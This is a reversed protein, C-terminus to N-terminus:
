VDIIVHDKVIAPDRQRAGVEFHGRKPAVLRAKERWRGLGSRGYVTVRLDAVETNSCWSPAGDPDVYPAVVMDENRCSFEGEIRTSFNRGRFRYHATGYESRTLLTHRFQNFRHVEGDVYLTFITLPPLAQGGRELRVTLCELAADRNGEFANCHGWAWSHAHKKGWLHTQAGPDGALEFNRGDVSITGNLAMNLSPSLVTTEGLGGRRYMVDPLHRHTPGPSWELNWSAEHGDGALAGRMSDHRIFCDGIALEFPSTTATMTEIPFKRNIAFTRSSDNADFHAFWLQAYPEGHGDIPSELTYRIWYGTNSAVHNCTLYWVEYHGRAAGDWRRVNDAENGYPHIPTV